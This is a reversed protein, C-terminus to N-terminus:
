MKCMSSVWWIINPDALEKLLSQEWIPRVFLCAYTYLSLCTFNKKSAKLELTYLVHDPM